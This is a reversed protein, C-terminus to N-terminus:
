RWVRPWTARLLFYLGSSVSVWAGLAALLAIPAGARRVLLFVVLAFALLGLGGLIGGQVDADAEGEGSKKQVLTLAAPLIAPFALFVGGVRPGFRIGVLGAVISVAAGFAFRVAYEAPKADKIAGPNFGVRDSSAAAGRSRRKVQGARSM